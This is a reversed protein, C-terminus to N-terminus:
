DSEADNEIEEEDLISNVVESEESSENGLESNIHVIEGRPYFRKINSASFERTCKPVYLEELEYSGNDVQSIARFPGNWHRNFLLGWQSELAKNYVLVLDGPQFTKRLKQAM